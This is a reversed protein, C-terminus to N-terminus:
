QFIGWTTSGPNLAQSYGQTAGINYSNGVTASPHEGGQTAFDSTGSACWFYTDGTGSLGSGATCAGGIGGTGTVHDVPTITNGGNSTGAEIWTTITAGKSAPGTNRFVAQQTYNQWAYGTCNGSGCVTQPPLIWVAAVKAGASYANDVLTSVYGEITTATASGATDNGVDYIMVNTFYPLTAKEVTNVGSPSPSAYSQITNAGMCACLFPPVTGFKDLARMMFGVYGNADGADGIGNDTQGTVHSDGRLFVANCTSSGSLTAAVVLPMVMGADATPTAWPGATGFVAPATTTSLVSGSGTPMPNTINAMRVAAVAGTSSNALTQIAYATQAALSVSLTDSWTISTGPAITASSNGSFTFPTVVGSIEIDAKVIETTLATPNTTELATTLEGYAQKQIASNTFGLRIGTATCSGSTMTMRSAVYVANALQPDTSGLAFDNPYFTQGDQQISPLPPIGAVSLGSIQAQATAAWGLLLAALVRAGLM